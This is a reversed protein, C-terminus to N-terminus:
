EVSKILWNYIALGMKIFVVNLFAWLLPIIILYAMQWLAGEVGIKENGNYIVTPTDFFLTSVLIIISLPLYVMFFGVFNIKFLEKGTIQIRKLNLRSM